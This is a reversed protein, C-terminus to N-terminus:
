RDPCPRPLERWSEVDITAQLVGPSRSPDSMPAQPPAGGIRIRGGGLVIGGPGALQARRVLGTIELMTRSRAEIEDLLTREGAMRFRRGPEIDSRVTEGEIRDGVIFTRGRSCGPISIRASDSPVEREQAVVSVICLCTVVCLPLLRIM